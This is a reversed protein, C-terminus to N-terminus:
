ATVELNIVEREGRAKITYVVTVDLRGDDFATKVDNVTLIGSLWTDLSQFVAAQLLTATEPSSPAFLARRLGAGFDPRNVREGPATLLVQRILQGVYAPYDTERQFRGTTGELAPPHRFGEFFPTTAM